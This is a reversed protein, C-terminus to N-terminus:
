ELVLANSESRGNMSRECPKVHPMNAHILCSVHM